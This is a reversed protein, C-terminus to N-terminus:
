VYLEKLTQILKEKSLSSCVAEKCGLNLYANTMATKLLPLKYFHAFIAGSLFADGAGTPNKVDVILGPLFEKKTHQFYYAGKKGVTILTHSIGQNIFYQGILDLSSPQNLDIGSLASAELQNVKLGWIRNFYKKLKVAKQTSIADVFIPAKAIKFLTEITEESLNTDMVVLDAELISSQHKMIAEHNIHSIPDMAAVGILDDHNEDIVSYYCSTRETQIIDLKLNIELANEKIMDAYVDHGLATLLTVDFGLRALNEAINRGVGGISEFVYGPNSDHLIMKQYPYLFIDIVAGGIVYIKKM